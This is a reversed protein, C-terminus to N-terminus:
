GPHSGQSSRSWSIRRWFIAGVGWAAKVLTLAVVSFQATEWQRFSPIFRMMPIVAM